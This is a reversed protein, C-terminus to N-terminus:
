VRKFVSTVFYQSVFRYGFKNLKSVVPNERAKNLDLGHIEITIYKPRFVAWDNGDIVKEDFGECDINMYDIEVDVPLYEQLIQGLPKVEVSIREVSGFKAAARESVATDFSNQARDKFMSFELKGAKDGVGSHVNIDRPREVEFRRIAGPDADINLGRWNRFLYFLCTNSFRYPDHCGVDVYFGDRHKLFHSIILDEGFQSFSVHAHRASLESLSALNTPVQSVLM